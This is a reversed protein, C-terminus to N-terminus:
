SLCVYVFVNKREYPMKNKEWSHKERKSVVTELDQKEWM